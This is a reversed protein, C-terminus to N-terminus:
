NSLVQTINKGFVLFANLHQDDESHRQKTQQFGIVDQWGSKQKSPRLPALTLFIQQQHPRLNLSCM